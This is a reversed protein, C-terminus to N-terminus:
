RMVISVVIKRLFTKKKPCSITRIVKFYLFSSDILVEKDIDKPSFDRCIGLHTNMTREADPTILVVSTGTSGNDQVVRSVVNYRKLQDLYINGFQDNGIKGSLVSPIGLGNCAIITNPASGGPM